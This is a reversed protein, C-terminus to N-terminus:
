RVLAHVTEIGEAVDTGPAVLTQATRAPDLACGAIQLTGFTGAIVAGDPDIAYARGAQADFVIAYMRLEAARARCVRELWPHSAAAHVVAARYGARRYALLYGPDFAAAADIRIAGFSAAFREFDDDGAASLAYNAELIRLREAVDGPLPDCSFAIRQPTAAAEHKRPAPIQARHPAPRELSLTAEITEPADQSALAVIEGAADVIQSKGCYAVMGRETGCKNAAVFPVGNEFARVRALLDAQINELNRPDRGSTVWATPMVLIEAGRDVLARAIQPMRGDACILVGLTGISTSVPRIANGASFWQRDFHWLFIKEASGAVSGDVDFVLASNFLEGDRRLATGAVVVAGRSRAIAALEGHVRALLREDVAEYGLVYAPVTGEGAVVLDHGAAARDIRELLPALAREFDARDHAGLQVAAVRITRSVIRATRCPLRDQGQLFSATVRSGRGRYSIVKSLRRKEYTQMASATVALATPAVGM